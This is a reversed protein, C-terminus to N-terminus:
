VVFKGKKLIWKQNGKKDVGYIDLKQRPANIVIDNHYETSRDPEFGSGLAVHIMGAIKENVILYDCLEATPNTNVAFEGILKFNKKKMNILPKPLAKAKEMELLRNWADKTQNNFAKKVDKPMSKVKYEGDVSLVVPDSNKIRYSRDISMVVDGVISGVVKQPTVFTEGGPLNAMTGAMIGTKKKYTKNILNRTEYDSPRAWRQTGDPKKLYVRFDTKGGVVPKGKVDVYDCATMIRAIKENRKALKFWDVNNTKIFIDIPLTETFCIRAQPKRNDHKTQPYFDLKLYMQGASQWRTKRNPSPFGIMEGFLQRGPYGKAKLGFVASAQKLKDINLLGSVKKFKKFVPENIDKSYECGKLIGLLESIKESRVRMSPKPSTASMTVKGTHNYATEAMAMSIFYSDLYDKLPLELSKISPLLEFGVSVNEKKKLDMVQDWIVKATRKLLAYKELKYWQAKYEWKSDVNTEWYDRKSYLILEPPTFLNDIGDTIKKNATKIFDMLEPVKQNYAGYTDFLVELMLSNKQRVYVFVDKKLESAAASLAAVSMYAKKNLYEIVVLINSVNKVKNIENKYYEVSKKYSAINYKM